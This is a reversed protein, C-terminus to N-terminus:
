PIGLTKTVNLLVEIVKRHYEKEQEEIIMKERISKNLLIDVRTRENIFHCLNIIAARLNQLFIEISKVTLNCLFTSQSLFTTTLPLTVGGVIVVGRLNTFGYLSTTLIYLKISYM